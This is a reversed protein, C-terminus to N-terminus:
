VNKEEPKHVRDGLIELACRMARSAMKVNLEMAQDSDANRARECHDIVLVLVEDMTLYFAYDIDGDIIEM